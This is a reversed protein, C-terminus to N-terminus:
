IMTTVPPSGTSWILKGAIWTQKVHGTKDFVVLDARKGVELSGRMGDKMLTAINTSAAQVAQALNVDATNMMIRVGESLTICSGILTEKEGKSVDVVNTARNGLKRQAYTIQGNPPYIGDPFGALEISDTILICREPKTNLALRLIAPHLHVADPIITFFPTQEETGAESAILSPAVGMLGPIGPERHGLATMANFLHTISTAGAQVAAVAQEYTASSHGISVVIHPFSRKIDKIMEIAGDLEPALTIYRIVDRLNEEGYVERYNHTAPTKFFIDNHAGKKSPHLFPGEVHAGM